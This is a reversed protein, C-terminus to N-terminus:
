TITRVANLRSTVRIRVSFETGVGFKLPREEDPFTLWFRMKDVNDQNVVNRKSPNRDVYFCTSGHPATQQIRWVVDSGASYRMTVVSRSPFLRDIDSRVYLSTPGNFAPRIRLEGPESSVLAVEPLHLFNGVGAGARMDGTISVIQTVPDFAHGYISGNSASMGQALRLAYDEGDRPMNEMLVDRKTGAANTWVVSFARFVDYTIPVEAELLEISEVNKISEDLRLDIVSDSSSLFLDTTVSSSATKSPASSEISKFMM